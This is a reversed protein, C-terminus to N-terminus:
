SSKVYRGISDYAHWKDWDCANSEDDADANIVDWLLYGCESADPYGFPSTYGGAQLQKIEELTVAAARYCNNGPVNNYYPAQLLVYEGYEGYNTLLDQYILNPNIM